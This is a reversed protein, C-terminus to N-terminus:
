DSLREFLDKVKVDIKDRATRFAEIPKGFPDEIGWDENIGAFSAPCVDKDACGMTIVVDYNLLQDPSIGKSEHDSIDINVESMVTIAHASVFGEPNTGGSSIEYGPNREESYFKAFGEAMQSRCSNGVCVFIIKKGTESM